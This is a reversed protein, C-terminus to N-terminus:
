HQTTNVSGHAKEMATFFASAFEGGPTLTANFREGYVSRRHAKLMFILMTPYRSDSATAMNFAKEELCDIFAERAPQFVNAKFDPHRKLYDFFSGLAVNQHETAALLPVGKSHLEIIKALVPSTLKGSVSRGRNAATAKKSNLAPV